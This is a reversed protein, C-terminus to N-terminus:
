SGSEQAIEGNMWCLLLLLLLLLLWKAAHTLESQRSEGQQAVRENARLSGSSLLLLLLLLLLLSM